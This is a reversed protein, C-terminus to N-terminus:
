TTYHQWHELTDLTNSRNRQQLLDHTKRVVTVPVDIITATVISTSGAATGLELLSRAEMTTSMAWGLAHSNNCKLKRALRLFPAWRQVQVRRTEREDNYEQQCSKVCYQGM